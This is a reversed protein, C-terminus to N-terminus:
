NLCRAHYKWTPNKSRISALQEREEASPDLVAQWFRMTRKSLVRSGTSLLFEKLRADGYTV